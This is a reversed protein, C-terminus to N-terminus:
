AIIIRPVLCITEKAMRITTEENASRSGIAILIIIGQEEQVAIAVYGAGRGKAKKSVVGMAISGTAGVKSSIELIEM